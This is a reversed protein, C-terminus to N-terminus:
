ITYCLGLIYTKEDIKLDLLFQEFSIDEGLGMNILKKIFKFILKGMTQCIIKEDLPLLIKTHKMPPKPYQLQFNQQRKKKYKIKHQQIKMNHIKIPLM